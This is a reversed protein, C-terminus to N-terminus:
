HRADLGFQVVSTIHIEYANPYIPPAKNLEEYFALFQKARERLTYRITYDRYVDIQEFFYAVLRERELWDLKQQEECLLRYEELMSQKKQLILDVNSNELELIELASQQKAIDIRLDNSLLQLETTAGVGYFSIAEAIGKRITAKQRILENLQNRLEVRKSLYDHRTYEMANNLLVPRDVCLLCNCLWNMHAHVHQDIIYLLTPPLEMVYNQLGNRTIAVTCTDSITNKNTIPRYRTHSFWIRVAIGCFFINHYLPTVQFEVGKRERKPSRHRTLKEVRQFQDPEIIQLDVFSLSMKGNFHYCGIYIPNRRLVHLTSSRWKLLRVESSFSYEALQKTLEYMTIYEHDIQDFFFRVIEAEPQYVALSHKKRAQKSIEGNEVLKYGFPVAGGRFQGCM